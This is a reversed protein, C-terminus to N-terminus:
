PVMSKGMVKSGFFIPRARNGLFFAFNEVVKGRVEFVPDPVSIRDPPDPPSGSRFKAFNWSVQCSKCFKTLKEDDVDDQRCIKFFNYSEDVKTLKIMNM